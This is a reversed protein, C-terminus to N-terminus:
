RVGFVSVGAGSATVLEARGDGDLDGVTMTDFEFGDSLVEAVCEIGDGAGVRLVSVRGSRGLVFDDQGDGDLDGVGSHTVRHGLGLAEQEVGGSETVFITWNAPEYSQHALITRSAGTEAALPTWGTVLVEAFRNAEPMADADSGGFWEVVVADSAGLLSIPAGDPASAVVPGNPANTLVLPGGFGGAGDNFRVTVATPTAFVLDAATGDAFGIGLVQTAAVADLAEDALPTFGGVGDALLVRVGTPQLALAIDQEGDGNFDAATADLVASEEPVPLAVWQSLDTGDHLRAGGAERGVVLDHSPSDYSDVLSLSLVDGFGPPTEPLLTLVPTQEPDCEPPAALSGCVGPDGDAIGCADLHDCDEHGGCLKAGCGDDAYYDYPDYCYMVCENNECTYLMGSFRDNCDDDTVCEPPAPGTDTDGTDPDGDDGDESEDRDAGATEATDGTDTPGGTSGGESEDLDAAVPSCGSAAVVTVWLNWKRTDM